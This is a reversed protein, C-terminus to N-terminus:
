VQTSAWRVLRLITIVFGFALLLDVYGIAFLVTWMLMHYATLRTMLLPLAPYHIVAAAMGTWIDLLGPKVAPEYDFPIRSFAVLAGIEVPVALILAFQFLRRDTRTFVM